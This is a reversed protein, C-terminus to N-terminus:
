DECNHPGMPKSFETQPGQGFFNTCRQSINKALIIKDSFNVVNKSLDCINETACLDCTLLGFNVMGDKSSSGSGVAATV